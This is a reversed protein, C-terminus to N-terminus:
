SCHQLSCMSSVLLWYSATILMVPGLGSSNLTWLMLSLGGLWLNVSAHSWRRVLLQKLGYWPCGPWDGSSHGQACETCLVAMDQVMLRHLQDEWDSPEVTALLLWQHDWGEAVPPLVKWTEPDHIHFSSGSSMAVVIDSGDEPMSQVEELFWIRVNHNSM